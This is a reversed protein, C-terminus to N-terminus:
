EDEGLRNKLEAILKDKEALAEDKEALEQRLMDMAASEEVAPLMINEDIADEKRARQIARTSLDNVMRLFAKPHGLDLTNTQIEIATMYYVCAQGLIDKADSRRNFCVFWWSQKDGQTRAMEDLYQDVFERVSGAPVKRKTKVESPLGNLIADIELGGDDRRNIISSRGPFLVEHLFLALVNHDNQLDSINGEHALTSLYAELFWCRIVFVSIGDNKMNTISLLAKLDDNSETFAKMREILANGTLLARNPAPKQPM